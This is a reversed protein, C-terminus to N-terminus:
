TDTVTIVTDPAISIEMVDSIDSVTIVKDPAVSIEMIDSTVQM